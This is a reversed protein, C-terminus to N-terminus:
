ETIQADIDLDRIEPMTQELEDGQNEGGKLEALLAQAEQTQLLAKQHQRQETLGDAFTMKKLVDLAPIEIIDENNVLRIHRRKYTIYLTSASLPVQLLRLRLYRPVLEWPAITALVTNATKEKVTITGTTTGDKSVMRLLSGSDYTYSSDVATVGNLTITETLEEGSVLGLIRVKQTIDGSNNSVAQVKAAATLTAKSGYEGAPTYLTPNDQVTIQDIYKRMLINVTIPIVVRSNVRDTIALIKEVRKPLSIFEVGATLTIAEDFEIAQRWMFNKWITGYNKNWWNKINAAYASDTKGILVGIEAVINTFIENM